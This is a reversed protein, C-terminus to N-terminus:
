NKPEKKCGNKWNKPLDGLKKWSIKIELTASVLSSIQLLINQDSQNYAYAEKSGVNITGMATERAILPVVVFSKIGEVQETKSDHILVPLNTKLAKQIPTANEIPVTEKSLTDNTEESQAFSFSTTGDASLIAVSARHSKLIQRTISSTIEFIEISDTARSIQESMDNLLTLRRTQEETEALAAQVQKFLKEQAMTSSLGAAVTQLAAIEDARWSREFTTELFALYGPISLEGPVALVLVSRIGQKALINRPVEPLEQVLGAFIGSEEIGDSLFNSLSAPFQQFAKSNIKTEVNKNQWESSQKWFIGESDEQAEFYYIRSAQTVEGMIQIAEDLAQSGRDNLSVM